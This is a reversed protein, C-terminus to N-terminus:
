KSHALFAAFHTKQDATADPLRELTWPKEPDFRLGFWDLMETYDIEDTIAVLKHLLAACLPLLVHRRM